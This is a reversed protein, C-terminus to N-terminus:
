YSAIAAIPDRATTRLDVLQDLFRGRPLSARPPSTITEHILALFPPRMFRPADDDLEHIPGVFVSAEIGAHAQEVRVSGLVQESRSTLGIPDENTAPLLPVGRCRSM